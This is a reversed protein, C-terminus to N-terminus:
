VHDTPEKGASLSGSSAELTAPSEGDQSVSDTACSAQETLSSVGHDSTNRARPSPIGSVGIGISHAIRADIDRPDPCRTHCPQNPASGCSACARTM